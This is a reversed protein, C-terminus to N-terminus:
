GGKTRIVGLVSMNAWAGVFAKGGVPVMLSPTYTFILYSCKPNDDEFVTTGCFAGTDYHRASNASVQTLEHQAATVSSSASGTTGGRTQWMAEVQVSFSIEYTGLNSSEFWLRVTGDNSRDTDGWGTNCVQWSSGDNMAWVGISISSSNGGGQYSGGNLSWGDGPMGWTWPWVGTKVEWTLVYGPDEGSPDIANTPDNTVYRYPNSDPNLGLPDQSLWRGNAPNDERAGDLYTGTISDYAGGTYLFRPAYSNLQSLINGYPDYTITVLVSGSTSVVQRISNINDTLFWQATGSGNVQGYFQNLAKPNYLYRETPTAGNYFDMYPNAGDFVTWTQTGNVTMGIRNNNVDYTFTETSSGVQVKTLRNRYDWTYTTVVGTSINKQTLLNGNHDYTYSYTGDSLLENGTGTSYGSMTRNGNADYSYTVSYAMTHGSLNLTGAAGTLEGNNDYSYTLSSNNNDQYSTLQSAKDYGYTYDALSLHKLTDATAMNTLRDANDYTLTTVITDGVSRTIGILRSAPDYGFTVQADLTQSLNAGNSLKVSTLRIDNDFTYGLSDGLSDTLGTRDNYNDYSYTLTVQPVGPTGSNNVSTLRNASDYGYSYKSYTDQAVSLNGAADYTWTATYGGSVWTEGTKRGVADYSYTITRGDADTMTTMEGAANYNYTATYGMPNITSSLRNVANYTYTTTNNDPDTISTQNGALDYTYTITGSLPNTVTLVRGQADYVTTTTRSLPDTVTTQNGDADYGYTTVNGLADEISTRQNLPNYTYTTTNKNPDTITTQNGDADYTYTYTNGMYDIYNVQEHDANYVMSATISPNSSGYLTMSIEDGASNYTYAIVDGLPDTVSAKQGLLTYTNTTTHSLPDTVSTQEGAADYGYTTTQNLPNTVTTQRNAADYGYTTTQNLPNVITIQNGNADYTYTTTENLADTVSSLRNLKDYISTTTHLLPDEVSTQNGVKDYTYTYVSSTTSTDALTEGTKRNMADYSYTNTFGRADTVSSQQGANNYAYTTTQNLANTLTTLENLSNYGYTTVGLLPNEESTVLGQSNYTYTWTNLLADEKQTMDGKSNYTYTTTDGTPDTYVTPESFSNYQYQSYSDDAQVMKTADGQSNFFDRTRRGLADASMWALDNTDRYSLAADGLPDIDATDSGFGLWDLGTTWVNNNGDTFQATDGTALLVATVNSSGAAAWGNMQMATLKETTSDARTVTSVRDASNYSFTTANNNPDTLKTLDNASDYSYKWQENAPDTISTLQKGTYALTATRNAPDTISSLLGSSYALTTVQNNMDTITTLQGNSYGFTTTNGDRDVNSTEQGSSNFNIKTGDPMTRTYVGNSLTLTSFDGAPTTYGGQGNNAFYLSTGDPNVLMMGGSVSVLQEVNDLSWGAGFPSNAQNVIDVNGSTTTHNSGNTVTISWPYRGTNLSTANAQLAIQVYDGPNLSSTNYTVTALATNNFTLQATITAPVSQGTPLQYEDLFIPQANAATSNYDLSVPTTNPNYSPMSFSTQASGDTLGISAYPGASQTAQGSSLQDPTIVTPWTSSSTPRSSSYAPSNTGAVEFTMTQTMQHHSTDTETVSVTDTRATGTFSTWTGQLNATGAGTINTLDPANTTNWSWSSVTTGSVQALLNESWTSFTNLTVNAPITEGTNMDLVYLPDDHHGQGDDPSMAPSLSQYHQQVLSPPTMSYTTQLATLPLSQLDPKGAQSQGPSDPQFAPGVNATASEQSAGFNVGVFQNSNVLGPGGGGGTPGGGGMGANPTSRGGAGGGGGGANAPPTALPKPPTSLPSFPRSSPPTMQSNLATQEQQESGTSTYSYQLLSPTRVAVSADDKPRSSFLLALNESPPVEALMEETKRTGGATTAIDSNLQATYPPPALEVRSSISLSTPSWREELVMLRPIVRCVVPRRRMRVRGPFWRCLWSFVWRHLKLGAM